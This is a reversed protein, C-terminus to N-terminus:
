LSRGTGALALGARDAGCLPGAGAVRVLVLDPAGSSRVFNTLREIWTENLVTGEKLILLGNRVVDQQLIMGPRLERTCLRRDQYEPEPPTYTELAQLIEPDFKRTLRLETLTAHRSAGSLSRRDFEQAVHVLVAGQRGAGEAQLAWPNQQWRVISAAIELRPIKSLLRAGAEPHARYM